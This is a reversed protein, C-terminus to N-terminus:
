LGRGFGTDRDFRGALRRGQAPGALEVWGAPQSSQILLAGAPRGKRVEEATLRMQRDGSSTWSANLGQRSLSHRIVAQQGCLASLADLTGPDSVGPLVLKAGFLTLFGEGARGWRARAQSLDQFCALTLVGQGGGEAVMAPLSPLPAINAVEDLALLLPPAEGPADAELRYRAARIQDILAAVLPATVEQHTGPACIYVTDSSRVFADPDFNPERTTELAAGTRYAALAGSATSWIGSLERDDTQALGTLLDEALDSGAAEVVQRAPELDRRNVWRLVTRMDGDCLAAAHLLPALLAEAREVWHAADGSRGGATGAMARAMLVSDDWALAAAIPSWQLRFAGSPVQTQGSPDYIWSRGGVSRAGTTAALVDPKTSTTVAPGPASLVNPVVVGRTKGSRPPGIVLVAQEPQSMVWRGASVGLLLRHRSIPDTQALGM